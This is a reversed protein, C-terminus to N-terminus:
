QLRNEGDALPGLAMALLDLARSQAEVEAAVALVRRGLVEVCLNQRTAPGSEKNLDAYRGPTTGSIPPALFRINRGIRSGPPEADM